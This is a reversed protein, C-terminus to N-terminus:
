LTLIMLSPLSDIQAAGCNLKKSDRFNTSGPILPSKRTQKLAMSKQFLHKKRWEILSSEVLFKQM